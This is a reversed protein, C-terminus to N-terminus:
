YRYTMKAKFREKDRIDPNEERKSVLYLPFPYNAFGTDVYSFATFLSPYNEKRKSNLEALVAGYQHIGSTSQREQFGDTLWGKRGPTHGRSKTPGDQVFGDDSTSELSKSPM